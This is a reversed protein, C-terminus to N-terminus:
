KIMEKLTVLTNLADLPRMSDIDLEKVTEILIQFKANEQDFINLQIVKENFNSKPKLSISKNSKEELDQLIQSARGIIEKPIGAMKAVHIGFSHDSGGKLLKRIFIISDKNEKIAIHYNVINTLTKELENLEHYHTAFLTKPRQTAHALYELIAWAISLGDFTSTGRGIEDMLILSRQSFHNLISATENMEVMFTSEGQSLNDHAGVRTFIKDILGIRCFQCPVFSGIQAMITTLAVQRLLASKGSMNPGTILLIQDSDNSIFTDNTIYSEHAPLIKEIIPHRGAQIEVDFSQDIIPRIYQNKHAIYAFNTICDLLAIVQASIMLSKTHDLFSQTFDLWLTEQLKYIQEEASLVQHEFVKLEDTIYREQNALTQKRHWHDPVKDRHLHSIELYFGFVNNQGIKLNSIGTLEIEKNLIRQLEEKNNYILSYYRGYNEDFSPQFVLGRNVIAPADELISQDIFNILSLYDPIKQSLIQLEELPFSKIKELLEQVDILSQKLRIFDRPNAKRLSIKAGLRELDGIKAIIDRIEETFNIEHYFFDVLNLRKEIKTKDILPQLIWNRLLRAGMGSKTMNLIDYLSKTSFQSQNPILDLNKITFADMWLSDRHDISTIAQIHSLDYIQAQNIYHILVAAPIIKEQTVELGFGKLSHTQFQKLLTEKAYTLDFVWEDLKYLYFKNALNDIFEDNFTKSIIIESPSYTNLYKDIQYSDGSMLLFSGTSLDLFSLHILEKEKYICALYNNQNQELLNETNALGPSLIETVGRKVIGKTAKPDELQECIAVRKGSKVLKPLYNQLAHYPIGALEISTGKGNNRKTLTIGLIASAEIADQSFTEYFDGVRFLLICDPYKAKIQNYQKMLPTQEIM